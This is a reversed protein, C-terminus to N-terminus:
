RRSTRAQRSAASSSGSRGSSKDPMRSSGSRPPRATMRRPPILTKPHSAFDVSVVAVNCARAVRELAPDQQHARGIVWGGGHIYLYVGEITEPIFLRLMIAGAPGPITRETALESLTLPGWIGRGSERAARTFAPPQTHVMPITALLAELQANFAATETDIAAPIFQHPDLGTADNM